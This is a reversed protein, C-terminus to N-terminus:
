IITESSNSPNTTFIGDFCDYYVIHDFSKMLYPTAFTADIMLPLGAQHAIRAIVPINMVEIGPNGLTEGYVLRTNKRIAAKFAKPERPDVFTTEIGFRPLTYTFLNHSGGYLSSSSM